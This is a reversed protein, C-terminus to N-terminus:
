IRVLEAVAEIHPTHPFMDVPQVRLVRYTEKLEFLDRSLTAPNCSVYVIKGPAMDRVQKVVKPHMGARPPDIVLVDPAFEVGSLIDKMDGTIFSCNEVQNRKCNERADRIAVEEIEIGTIESAADSLYIPITGTGTYLDLVKESGSLGAFDRAVKYLKEAQATNTQFFSNASITYKWPGIRDNLSPEGALLVEFDGVAVGSKRDTVNNVVGSVESFEEMLAKAMPGLEASRDTTTVLNILYKKEAFSRRLVAFRWFGEHSRLGYAPLGSDRMMRNIHKLIRNATESQLHCSEIDLVKHFTGPVHLGLAFSRDVNEDGLEHPLLWRFDSVSFEMKNRYGYIEDSAMVPYVPIDSLGGLHALAEAVHERKYELQKDYKLFQWKCGGCHGSYQCPPDVRFPSPELIELVRARAWSKKKRGVRAAVRDGPVAGEVFVAMGDVRCLGLAGFATKEIELEITQGKKIAM